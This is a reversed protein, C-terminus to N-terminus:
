TFAPLELERGGGGTGNNSDGNHLSKFTLSRAQEGGPASIVVTDEDLIDGRLIAKALGTELERQVARKVPRAGYVPDFGKAQVAM